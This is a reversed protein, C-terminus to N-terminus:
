RVGSTKSNVLAVNAGPDLGGIVGKYPSSSTLRVDWAALNQFGVDSDRAPYYNNTPYISPNAGIIINGTFVAGPAYATLSATGEGTGSAKVGYQSRRVINNAFVFGTTPVSVLALAMYNNIVTNNRITINQPGSGMQFATGRGGFDSEPGMETIVNHEILINNTIGVPRKPGQALVTIGNEVNRIVNYRITYHETVCWTCAGDQNASKINFAFGSQGDKWNGEFVNGEILVRRSNKSEFLNKVMVTPLTVWNNPKEFHNRRIEIDSPTLNPISPDAGGFVINEAGGALYNNVIKFPGPGNWGMIAQSDQRNSHCHQLYSDIVASWASNLTVCRKTIRHPYGHIYVRDLILNSAVESAGHWKHGFNIISGNGNQSDRDPFTIELGMIRYYSADASVDTQFTPGWDKASQVRALNLNSAIAPTMRTGPSPLTVDTTITIWGTGPKARLFYDGTFTAGPALLIIDGRQAADLAAQLDDGQNVRIRNGTPAVYTTNVWAQPLDPDNGSPPPPPPPPPPSAADQVSVTTSGSVAGTSGGESTSGESSNSGASASVQATGASVGQVSGSQSVTAIGTNSSAWTVTVGPMAVGNSDAPQAQMQVSAGEDVQPNAPSIQVQALIQRSTVSSNDSKSAATAIIATGGVGKSVVRGLADVSAISTNGTSWNITVGNIVAGTADLAQATYRATDGIANLTVPQSTIVVRDVDRTVTITSTGSKGGASATITAQGAGNGDVKGSSSVSAVGSASSSWSVSVGSVPNGSSDLPTAHLQVSGGVGISSTKPTVDISAVGGAVATATFTVAPLSGVMAKVQNTGATSGLTYSVRAQGSADTKTSSASLSGEGTVVAWAVDVGSMAAGSGDSVKVVFPQGLTSGAKGSQANGSVMVLTTPRAAQVTVQASGTVNGSKAVIETQGVGAARVRGRNDVTAVAANGSSWKMQGSKITNGFQDTARASFNTQDGVGLTASSPTVTIIKVKAAKATATFWQEAGGDEVTATALQDGADSGLRWKVRATGDSGAASVLSAGAGGGAGQAGDATGDRFRWQVRANPIVNGHQDVVRVALEQNLVEGVIGEQADGGILEIRHDDGGGDARARLIADALGNASVKVANDGAAPGLQWVVRATGDAGTIARDPYVSGGGLEVRFSVEVGPVPLGGRDTVRVGVQDALAAGAAGEMEGEFLPRLESPTPMVIVPAVVTRDGLTATIQVSGPFKASIAGTESVSAIAPASSTWTPRAGGLSTVVSGDSKVLHLNFWGTEGDSLMLETPSIQLTGELVDGFELTPGLADSRCATIALSGLLIFALTRNFGSALPRLPRTSLPSHGPISSYM